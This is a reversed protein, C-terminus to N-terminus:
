VNTILAIGASILATVVGTIACAIATRKYYRADDAPAKEISELRTIIGDQGKQMHEINVALREISAALGRLDHLEEKIDSLRHNFNHADM